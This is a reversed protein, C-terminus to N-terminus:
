RAREWLVNGTFINDVVQPFFKDRTVSTVINGLAIGPM